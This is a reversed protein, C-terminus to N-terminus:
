GLEEIGIERKAKRRAIRGDQYVDGREIERSSALFITRRKGRGDEARIVEESYVFGEKEGKEWICLASFHDEDRERGGKNTGM